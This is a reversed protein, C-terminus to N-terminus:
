RFSWDVIREAFYREGQPGVVDLSVQWKGERDIPIKAYYVGSEDTSEILPVKRHEAVRTFHFAMLAGTGGKVPRGKIDTIVIKLENPSKSHEFQINWGLRNSKTILDKHVQWDVAQASYDPLPRFSQDGIAVALAYGAISLNIAILGFIFMAWLLASKKESIAEPFNSITKSLPIGSSTQTQPQIKADQM